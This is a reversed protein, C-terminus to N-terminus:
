QGNTPEVSATGVQLLVLGGAGTRGIRHYMRGNDVVLARNTLPSVSAECRAACVMLGIIKNAALDRMSGSSRVRRPYAGHSLYDQAEWPKFYSFRIAIALQVEFPLSISMSRARRCRGNVNVFIASPTVEAGHFPRSAAERFLPNELIFEAGEALPEAGECPEM